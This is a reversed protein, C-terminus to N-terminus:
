VEAEATVPENIYLQREKLYQVLEKQTCGSVFTTWSMTKVVEDSLNIAIDCIRDILQLTALLTNLKLTGRFMRFEITADNTLNVCTYRNFTHKGKAECLIDKPNEKLGYRNAWRELQRQTRRSFKLLEDWHKEFFYLVRAICADQEQTTRGFCDRNVHVHLGCTGAQHSVYGLARAKALINCWPMKKEHYCISMPHTVLEFGSELSGDHKCYLHDDEANAVALIQEAKSSSEGGDDIELEVGMYRDCSGLDYFYPEPKYNYDNITKSQNCYCAYCFPEDGGDAYYADDQHILRDCNACHYYYQEYCSECLSRHSDSHADEDWVRDGCRDCLTTHEDLCGQCMRENDFETLQGAEVMRGCITCRVENNM